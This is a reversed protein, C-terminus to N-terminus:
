KGGYDGAYFNGNACERSFFLERLSGLYAAVFLFAALARIFVNKPM